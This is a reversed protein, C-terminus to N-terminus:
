LIYLLRSFSILMGSAIGGSAGDHFTAHYIARCALEAAEELTTDYHYSLSLSCSNIAKLTGHCFVAVSRIGVREIWFVM